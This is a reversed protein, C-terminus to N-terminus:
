YDIELTHVFPAFYITESLDIGLQAIIKMNYKKTKTGNQSLTKIRSKAVGQTMKMFLIEKICDSTLSFDMMNFILWNDNKGFIDYVHKKYKYIHSTNM